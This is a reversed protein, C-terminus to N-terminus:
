WPGPGSTTSPSPSSRTARTTACGSTSAPGTSSSSAHVRADAGRGRQPGPDVRGDRRDAVMQATRPHCTALTASTTAVAAPAPEGGQRRLDGPGPRGQVPLLRARRPDHRGPSAAGDTNSSVTPDWPRGSRTRPAPAGCRSRGTTGSRCARRRRRGIRTMRATRRWCTRTPARAARSRSSPGGPGRNGVLDRAALDPPDDGPREGVLRADPRDDREGDEPVEAALDFPM